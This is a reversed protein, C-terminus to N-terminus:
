ELTLVYVCLCWTDGVAVRVKQGWCAEAEESLNPGEAVLQGNVLTSKMAPGEMLSIQMEDCEFRM